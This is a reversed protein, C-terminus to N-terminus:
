QRCVYAVVVDVENRWTFHGSQLVVLSSYSTTSKVVVKGAKRGGDEHCPSTQGRSSAEDLMAAAIALTAAAASAKVQAGSASAEFSSTAAASAKAHAAGFVSKTVM